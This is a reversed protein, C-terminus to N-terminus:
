FNYTDYMICYNDSYHIIMLPQSPIITISKPSSVRRITKVIDNSKMDMILVDHYTAIALQNRNSLCSM